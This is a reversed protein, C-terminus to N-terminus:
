STKSLKEQVVRGQASYRVEQTREDIIERQFVQDFDSSEATLVGGSDLEVSRYPVQARFENLDFQFNEDALDHSRLEDLV